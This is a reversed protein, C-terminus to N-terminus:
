VLKMVFRAGFALALGGLAILAWESMTPTNASPAASTFTQSTGYVTGISNTAYARVYYTTSATLGSISSTFTGTGSSNTTHGLENSTLVPPDTASWVVGRATVEAGGDSTVNGGCAATAPQINTVTNTTVSALAGFSGYRFITGDSSAGGSSSMAYLYGNYYILSGMPSRPLSGTGPFTYNETYGTGNPNISFMGGNGNFHNLTLGWLQNNYVLLSGYPGYCGTWAFDRIVTVTNNNLIPDYYFITGVGDGGGSYSMGYLKDNLVVLDGFNDGGTTSTFRYLRTFVNNAPNISFICGDPCNGNGRKTMGYLLGGYQVLGGTAEGGDESYDFNYVTTYVTNLLNYSFVIGADDTGGLTTMGWLKNNYYLLAGEPYYGGGTSFTHLVTYNDGDADIRFPTGHSGSACDKTLGYLQGNVEILSGS